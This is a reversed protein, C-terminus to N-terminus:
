RKTKKNQWGKAWERQEEISFFVYTKVIREGVRWQKDHFSILLQLYSINKKKINDNSKIKKNGEYYPFTFGWKVM